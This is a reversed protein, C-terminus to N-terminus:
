LRKVETTMRGAMAVEGEMKVGSGLALSVIRRRERGADLGGGGESEVRLGNPRVEDGAFCRCRSTFGARWGRGMRGSRCSSGVIRTGIM